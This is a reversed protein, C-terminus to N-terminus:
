CMYITTLANVVHAEMLHRDFQALGCGPNTQIAGAACTAEGGTAHDAAPITSTAKDAATAASAANGGKTSTTATSIKAVHCHNLAAANSDPTELM